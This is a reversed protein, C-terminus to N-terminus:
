GKEAICYVSLGFPFDFRGIFLREIDLIFTLFTNLWAPLKQLDSGTHGSGSKLNGCLRLIMILPFLFANRYAIKNVRFNASEIKQRLNEKTYRRVTHIALDHRSCMFEFAPLNMVLLGDPRLVRYFERLADTDDGVDKHYLVDLSIVANFSNDRYPLRSVSGRVLKNLGRKVCRNVAEKSIDLGFPIGFRRLESMLFGTGCGADLISMKEDRLMAKGLTDLVCRRLGVYWWYDKELKFLKEYEERNM